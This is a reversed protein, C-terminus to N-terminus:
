GMPCFCRGPEYVGSMPTKLNKIEIGADALKWSEDMAEKVGALAIEGKGSVGMLLFNAFTTSGSVEDISRFLKKQLSQLSVFVTLPENQNGQLGFHGFGESAVVGGFEENMTVFKNDREGSLPADRSFLSPEEM